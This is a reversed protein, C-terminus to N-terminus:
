NVNIFKEQKESLDDEEDEEDDDDKNSSAICEEFAQEFEYKPADTSTAWLQDTVEQATTRMFFNSIKNAKTIRTIAKNVFNQMNFSIGEKYISRAYSEQM